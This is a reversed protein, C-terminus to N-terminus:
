QWRPEAFTFHHAFDAYRRWEEPVALPEVSPPTLKLAAMESRLAAEFERSGWRRALM